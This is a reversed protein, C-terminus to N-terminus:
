DFEIGLGDLEHEIADIRRQLEAVVWPRVALLMADDQYQGKLTVGLASGEKVADRRIALSSRDDVLRKALSVDALKM